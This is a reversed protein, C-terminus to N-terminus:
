TDTTSTAESDGRSSLRNAVLVGTTFGIAMAGFLLAARPMSLSFFLLKTEVTETNQLVVIVTLLAALGVAILKIRNMM